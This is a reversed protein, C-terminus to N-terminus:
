NDLTDPESNPPKGFRFSFGTGNESYVKEIRERIDKPEREQISSSLTEPNGAATDDVSLIIDNVSLGANKRLVTRASPPYSSEPAKIWIL